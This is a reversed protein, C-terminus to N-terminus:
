FHSKLYNIKSVIELLKGVYEEVTEGEKMKHMEFEKELALLKINKVRDSGEYEENLKKKLNEYTRISLFYNKVLSLASM